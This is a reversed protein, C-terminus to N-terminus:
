SGCSLSCTDAGSAGFSDTEYDIHSAANEVKSWLHSYGVKVEKELTATMAARSRCYSYVLRRSEDVWVFTLTRRCVFILIGKPRQARM